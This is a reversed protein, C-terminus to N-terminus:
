SDAGTTPMAGHLFVSVVLDVELPEDSPVWRSRSVLINLFMAALQGVPMRLRDREPELLEAIADRIQTFSEKRKDTKPLKLGDAGGEVAPNGSPRRLRGSASLATLVTGAHESHTTLIGAAEVLRDALPQDIPVEGLAEITRDPRLAEHLCADILEEKDAFARFITGEGIGAARAIQTTTIAAGHEAVLPLVSRVIM